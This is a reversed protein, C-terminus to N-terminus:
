SGSQALAVTTPMPVIVSKTYGSEFHSYDLQKTHGLIRRLVAKRCWRKFTSAKRKIIVKLTKSKVMDMLGENLLKVHDYFIDDRTIRILGNCAMYSYMRKEFLEGAYYPYKESGYNYCNYIDGQLRETEVLFCQDSFGTSHIFHNSTKIIKLEAEYTFDTWMPNAVFIYRNHQMENIAAYVWSGGAGEQMMCDCTFYLLYQGKCFYAATLPGVSYYYGDFFDLKFSERTINYKALITEMHDEAFYYADIAKRNVANIAYQEVTARDKVNNIILIKEYFTIECRDIMQELRNGKLVREWDNEYCNTFFSVSPQGGNNESM